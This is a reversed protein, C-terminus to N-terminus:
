LQFTSTRGSVTAVYHEQVAARGAETVYGDAAWGRRQLSAMVSPPVPRVLRGGLGPLEIARLCALRDQDDPTADSAQATLDGHQLRSWLMQCIQEPADQPHPWDANAELTDIYAQKAVTGVARYERDVADSVGDCYRQVAEDLACLACLKSAPGGGGRPPPAHRPPCNSGTVCDDLPQYAHDGLYRVATRLFAAAHFQSQRDLRSLGQAAALPFTLRM